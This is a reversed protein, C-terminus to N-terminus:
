LIPPLDLPRELTDYISKCERQILKSDPLDKLEMIENYTRRERFYLRFIEFRMPYNKRWYEEHELIIPNNPSLAVIDKLAIYNSNSGKWLYMDEIDAKGTVIFGTFITLLITVILHLDTLLYVSTFTLASWVFCHYAKQYHKPKGCIFKSLFFIVMLAIIYNYNIKLVLGIMFIVITEVINFILKKIFNKVKTDEM